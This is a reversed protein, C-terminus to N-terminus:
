KLNLIYDALQSAARQYGQATFHIGDRRGLGQAIWSKMSCQGGMANQWSWFKVYSQTALRQQMQQVADLMTPRVGCSGATSRLSEPAGAIVILARPLAKHIRNITNKWISELETMDLNDNFAENTGYALVVIDAQSAIIDKDWDRRWRDWQSLQSGNIGLASVVAGRNANEISVAGLTWDYGNTQITFPFSANLRLHQWQNPKIKSKDISIYGASSNVILPQNAAGPHLTLTVRQTGNDGLRSSYVQSSNGQAHMIMGGLSFNDEERRSTVSDWGSNSYKVQSTLQGRVSTPPVLGIGGNGLRQQLKRRLEDTFAAGATHSDGLQLVRFKVNKGQKLAALKTNWAIQQQYFPSNAQQDIRDGSCSSLLVVTILSKLLFKVRM